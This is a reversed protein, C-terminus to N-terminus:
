LLLFALLSLSIASILAYIALGKGASLTASGIASLISSKGPGFVRINEVFETKMSVEADRMNSMADEVAKVCADIIRSAEGKSGVFIEGGKLNVVHNDTTMIEACEVPLSELIRERLGRVMNNGDIVVYATRIGGTEVVMAKIGDDGFGENREGIKPHFGFGVKLRHMEANKLMEGAREASALMQLVRRDGPMIDKSYPEGCNHADILSAERYGKSKAAYCVAIGAGLEIDEMTEPSTTVTMLVSDGFRQALMKVSGEQIRVPQSALSFRESNKIARDVASIIKGIEDRSVPNFDHNCTGHAVLVPFPFSSSIIKPLNGGGIEGFPGPHVSPIVLAGIIEDSNWFSLVTVPVTVDEGIRKLIEEMGNSGSEGHELFHYVFEFGSIGFTRLPSDLYKILLASLTISVATIALSLPLIESLGLFHLSLASISPYIASLLASHLLREPFATTFIAMLSFGSIIGIALVYFNWESIPLLKSLLHGLSTMSVLFSSSIFFLLFSRELKISG